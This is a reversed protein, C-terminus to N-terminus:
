QLPSTTFRKKGLVKGVLQPRTIPGFKRSDFSGSMDEGFVFYTDPPMVGHFSEEYLKLMRVSNGEFVYPRGNSMTLNHGNVSLFFGGQTARLSFRDGPMVRLTKLIDSLRGELRVLVVDNRRPEHCPFFNFDIEVEDEPLFVPVMSAGRVIRTEVHSECGADPAASFTLFVLVQLM